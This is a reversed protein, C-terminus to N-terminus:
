IIYGELCRELDGWVKARPVGITFCSGQNQPYCLFDFAILVAWPKLKPHSDGMDLPKATKGTRRNCGGLYVTLGPRFGLHTKTCSTSSWQRAVEETTFVCSAFYWDTLLWPLPSLFSLFLRPLASEWSLMYAHCCYTQDRYWCQM